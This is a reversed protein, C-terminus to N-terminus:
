ERNVQEAKNEGITGIVMDCIVYNMPINIEQMNRDMLM